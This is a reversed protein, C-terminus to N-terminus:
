EKPYHYWEDFRACQIPLVPSILPKIGFIKELEQYSPVVKKIFFERERPDDLM